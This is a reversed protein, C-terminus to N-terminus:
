WITDKKVIDADQWGCKIYKGTSISMRSEEIYVKIM